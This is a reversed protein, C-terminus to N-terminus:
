EPDEIWRDQCGDCQWTTAGDPATEILSSSLHMCKERQEQKARAEAIAFAAFATM